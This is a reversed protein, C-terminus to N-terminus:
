DFHDPFMCVTEKRNLEAIAVNINDALLHNRLRVGNEEMYAIINAAVIRKGYLSKTNVYNQLLAQTRSAIGSFYLSVLDRTQRLAEDDFLVTEYYTRSLLDHLKILEKSDSAKLAYYKECAQFVSKIDKNTLQFHYLEEGNLDTRARKCLESLEGYSLPSVFVYRNDKSEELISKSRQFINYKKLDSPSWNDKTFNSAKCQYYYREGKPTESIFEVSDHGEGLPEVIISSLDGSVIRLLLKALYRNEYENGYKDTRGGRELSM